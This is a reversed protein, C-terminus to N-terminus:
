SRGGDRSAAELERRADAALLVADFPLLWRARLRIRVERWAAGARRGDRELTADALTEWPDERRQPIRGGTGKDM